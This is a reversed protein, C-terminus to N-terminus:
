TYKKLKELFKYPNNTTKAFKNTFNKVAIQVKNSFWWDDIKEYNDNIFKAAEKADKFLIKAKELSLFYKKADQRIRCIREDFILITPLNLNLTELYGTSNLSDVYIKYKELYYISSKKSHFFNAKKFKSKLTNLVYTPYLNYDSFLNREHKLFKFASKTKIDERLNSFFIDLNKIYLNIENLTRPRGSGIDGPYLHWDFLPMILGSTKKTQKIRIGIMKQCFLKEIKKSKGSWGWSLFKDNLKIQIKEIPYDDSTGYSGGHQLHFLKSGNLTKKAAFFKFPENFVDDVSSIILKPNTPLKYKKLKINALKYNELFIMPFNYKLNSVMYKLFSTKFSSSFKSLQSRKNENFNSKFNSFINEDVYHMNKLYLKLGLDNEKSFGLNQSIIKKNLFPNSFFKLTNKFSNQEKIKFHPLPSIKKKNVCKFKYRSRKELIDNYVWHNWDDSMACRTSHDYTDFPVFKLENFKVFNISINNKKYIKLLSTIIEWRDFYLIIYRSLWRWLLIEWYKKSFNVNHIINLRKTLLNLLKYYIKYIESLDKKLKINNDWHYNSKHKKKLNFNFIIDSIQIINKEKAIAIKRSSSTLTIM